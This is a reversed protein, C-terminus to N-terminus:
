MEDGYEGEQELEEREVDCDFCYNDPQYVKDCLTRCCNCFYEDHGSYGDAYCNGECGCIPYLMCEDLDDM